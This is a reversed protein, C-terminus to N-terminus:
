NGIRFVLGASYYFAPGAQQGEPFVYGYGGEFVFMQKQTIRGEAGFNLLAFFTDPPPVSDEELPTEDAFIINGPYGKAGAFRVTSYFNWPKERRTGVTLGIDAALSKGDSDDAAGFGAEARLHPNLQYRSALKVAMTGGDIRSIGMFDFGLDFRDTVGYNYRGMWGSGGTHAGEFLTVGTGAAVAAESTKAGSTSPGGYTFLPTPPAFTVCGSLFLSFLALAINQRSFLCKM